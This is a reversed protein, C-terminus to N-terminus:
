NVSKEKPKFIVYRSIGYNWTTILLVAGLKAINASLAINNPLIYTLALNVLVINFIYGIGNALMFFLYQHIPHGKGDSFTWRRNHIFSNTAALTYSIVSALYPNLGVFLLINFLGIDIAVNSVGVIAFKMIKILEKNM